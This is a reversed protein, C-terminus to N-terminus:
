DHGARSRPHWRVDQRRRPPPCVVMERVATNARAGVGALLTGAAGPVGAGDAAIFRHHMAQEGPTTLIGRLTAIAGAADDSATAAADLVKQVLEPVAKSSEGAKKAESSSSSSAAAAAAM